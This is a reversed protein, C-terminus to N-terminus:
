DRRDEDAEDWEDAAALLKALPLEFGPLLPTHYTEAAGVIRAPRLGSATNFVSMTRRFRDVVWYEIVGADLYEWRKHSYDRERSRKGASVFEVLIAPV